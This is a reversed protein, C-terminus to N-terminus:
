PKESDKNKKSDKLKEAEKLKESDRLEQIDKELEEIEKYRPQLLEKREEKTANVYKKLEDIYQKAKTAKKLLEELEEKLTLVRIELARIKGEVEQLKQREPGKLSQWPFAIRVRGQFKPDENDTVFAAQPGVKRIVPVPHVPPIFKKGDDYGPIAYIKLSRMGSYKDDAMTGYRDYDRNWAEESNLEIQIVVYTDSLGKIKIKQGLKVNIFNTGMNICIIKRQQAEEHLLIDKYYNLSTWGASNLTGFQVAKLDNYQDNKGQLIEIYRQNQAPNYMSVRLDALMTPIGENILGEIFATAVAGGVADIENALMTKGFLMM